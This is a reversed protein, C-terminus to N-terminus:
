RLDKIDPFLKLFNEFSFGEAIRESISPMRALMGLMTLMLSHPNSREINLSPSELLKQLLHMIPMRM